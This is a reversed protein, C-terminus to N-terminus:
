KQEPAATAAAKSACCSKGGTKGACAKKESPSCSAEKKVMEGKADASITKPAVNVFANSPEDFQVSVFKVNGQADAEKRVYAVSGDDSMRKEITPDLSAAKSVKSACCSKGAQATGGNCSQAYATAIGVAFLFSLLFAVKKM